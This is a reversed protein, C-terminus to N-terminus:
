GGGVCRHGLSAPVRTRDGACVGPGFVVRVLDIELHKPALVGLLPFASETRIRVGLVVARGPGETVVGLVGVGRARLAFWQRVGHFHEDDPAAEAAQQGACLEPLHAHLRDPHQVLGAVETPGPVPVAVRDAVAVDLGVGVHREQFLDAGYRLPTVGRPLLDAAVGHRDCLGEAQVAVHHEVGADGVQFPVLCRVLPHHAGVAPVAHAGTEDDGGRARECLWFERADRADFAELSVGEVGAPPVVVVGSSVLFATQGSEGVLLDRDHARAGGTYLDDWVQPLVCFVQVHELPGGGRHVDTVVPGGIRVPCSGQAGTPLPLAHLVEEGDDA